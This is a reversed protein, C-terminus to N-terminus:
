PSPPISVGQGRDAQALAKTTGADEDGKARIHTMEETGKVCKNHTCGTTVELLPWTPWYPNRYVPETFHM